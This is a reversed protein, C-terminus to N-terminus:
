YRATLVKKTFIPPLKLNKADSAGVIYIPMALSVLLHTSVINLVVNQKNNWELVQKSIFKQDKSIKSQLIRNKKTIVKSM